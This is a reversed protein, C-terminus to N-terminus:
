RNPCSSIPYTLLSTLRVIMPFLTDYRFKNLNRLGLGVM